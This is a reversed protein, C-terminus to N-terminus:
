EAGGPANPKSLAAYFAHLDAEPVIRTLIIDDSYASVPYPDDGELNLRNGLAERLAAVDGTDPQAPTAYLDVIEGALPWSAPYVFASHGQALARLHHAHTRAVVERQPGASPQAALAKFLHPALTLPQYQKALVMCREFLARPLVVGEGATTDTM